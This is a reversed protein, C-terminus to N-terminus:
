SSIILDLRYDGTPAADSFVFTAEEYTPSSALQVLLIPDSNDDWDSSAGPVGTTAGGSGNKWPIGLHKVEDNSAYSGASWAALADAKVSKVCPAVKVVDSAGYGLASYDCTMYNAGNSITFTSVQTTLNEADM